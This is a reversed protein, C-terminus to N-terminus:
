EDHFGFTNRVRSTGPLDENDKSVDSIAEMLIRYQKKQMDEQQMEKEYMNYKRAFTLIRGEAYDREHHQFKQQKKLKVEEEFETLRKEMKIQGDKLLTQDTENELDKRLDKIEQQISMLDSEAYKALTKLMPKCDKATFDGWDELLGPYPSEYTPVTFIMRDANSSGGIEESDSFIWKAAEM